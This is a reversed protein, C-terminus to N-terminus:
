DKDESSFHMPETVSPLPLDTTDIIRQLWRDAAARVEEPSYTAPKRFQPDHVVSILGAASWRNITRESVGAIEAAQARTIRTNESNM